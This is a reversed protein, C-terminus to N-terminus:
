EENILVAKKTTGSQHTFYLYYIGSTLEEVNWHIIPQQTTENNLLNGDKDLLKLNYEEEATRPDDTIDAIQINLDTTAPQPYVQIISNTHAGFIDIFGFFLQSGSCNFLRLSYRYTGNSVPSGTNNLRGNWFIDGGEWGVADTTATAAKSCVTSGASNTIILEYRYANILSYGQSADLVLWTDNFGDGNPTFVTPIAVSFGGTLVRSVGVVASNTAGTAQDTVQVVIDTTVNLAVQVTKTAGSGPFSLGPTATSWRYTYNGSGGSVHATLTRTCSNAAAGTQSISVTIGYVQPPIGWFMAVAVTFLALRTSKSKEQFIIMHIAIM